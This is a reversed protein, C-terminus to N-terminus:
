KLRRIFGDQTEVEERKIRKTTKQRCTVNTLNLELALIFCINKM